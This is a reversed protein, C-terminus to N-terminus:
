GLSISQRLSRMLLSLISERDTVIEAVGTMGLKIHGWHGRRGVQLGDIAIKVTYTPPRQAEVDSHFASDPAVFLVRGTVSGYKQYDYADLKIRAPQGERLLGIDESTVAVDIRFGRQEAVSLVVQGPEVVDGVKADLSTVTGDTPARLESQNREWELKALELKAAEAESKKLERRGDLESQEVAHEQDVLKLAHRLVPLRGEDIPLQSEELKLRAERVRGDARIFETETVARSKVLGQVRRFQDDAVAVNVQALRIASARRLILTQAQEEAEALEAEAKSQATKYRQQIMAEFQDLKVLESEIAAVLQRQKALDKNLRETELRFLLDGKKVAVGEQVHVEIVRGGRLPSVESEEPASDPILASQVMPRVRGTARVILDAQTIATWLVGATVLAVLLMFTAHVIRPPRALLTQRYDTCDSLNFERLRNM